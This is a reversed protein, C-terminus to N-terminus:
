AAVEETDDKLLAEILDDLDGAADKIVVEDGDGVIRIGLRKLDGAALDYVSPKHVAEKKRILLEVQEEPLQARIRKIVSAEDDWEIKGKSKQFGLKVGHMTRTRPKEFLAPSETIAQSLAERAARAEGVLRKIRPLYKKILARREEDHAMLTGALAERLANFKEALPEIEKMTAM